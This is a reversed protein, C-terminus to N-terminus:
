KKVSLVSLDGAEKMLANCKSLLALRNKRVAEDKDMVMVSEFFKAIVPSLEALLRTLTSWDYVSVAHAVPEELRVIEDYLEREAPESM